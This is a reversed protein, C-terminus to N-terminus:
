FHLRNNTNNSRYSQIILKDFVQVLNKTLTESEYKFIEDLNPNIKLRKKQWKLYLDTLVQKIMEKDEPKVVYGTRTLSILRAAEGDPPVLALIPKGSAIYQFTKAPINGKGRASAVILLLLDSSRIYEVAMELPVHGVISLVKELLPEEKQLYLYMRTNGVLIVEISKPSIISDALLDKLASLFHTPTQVRLFSGAYVIRMKDASVSSPRLSFDFLDKDFGNTITVFKHPSELPALARFQREYTNTAAIVADAAKLIKRELLKELKKRPKSHPLFGPRFSWEDRFDAVWPLQTSRKLLFGILHATYPSSVSYILDIRKKKIIQKANLYASILWGIQRDPVLCMQIYERLKPAVNPLVRQFLDVIKWPEIEKARVVKIGKPIISYSDENYHFRNNSGVTLVFPIWELRPLHKLFRLIRHVAVSTHPPFYYTIMLINKM